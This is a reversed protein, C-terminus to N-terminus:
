KLSLEKKNKSDYSAQNKYFDETIIHSSAVFDCVADRFPMKMINLKTKEAERDEDIFPRSYTVINGYVDITINGIVSDGDVVTYPHKDIYPTFTYKQKSIANIGDLRKQTLRAARGLKLLGKSMNSNEEERGFNDAFNWNINLSRMVELNYDRKDRLKLRDLELQHFINDSVRFILITLKSLETLSEIIRKGFVTGNTIIKVERVTVKGIKLIEILREIVQIAILPEGGTLLLSGVHKVNNFIEDLIDLSMNVICKDGRLCHECEITCNRTIELHLDQIYM